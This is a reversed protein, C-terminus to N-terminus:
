SGVPYRTHVFLYFKGDRTPESTAYVDAIEWALGCPSDYNDAQLLVLNNEEYPHRNLIHLRSKVRIAGSSTNKIQWAYWNYSYGVPCNSFLFFFVKKKSNHVIRYIKVM